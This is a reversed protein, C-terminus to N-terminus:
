VNFFSKSSSLRIKKGKKNSKWIELRNVMPWVNKNFVQVLHNAFKVNEGECFVVQSNRLGVSRCEKADGELHGNHVHSYCTLDSSAGQLKTAMLWKLLSCQLHDRCYDLFIMPPRDRKGSCCVFYTDKYSQLSQNLSSSIPLKRFINKSYKVLAEGELSLNSKFHIQEIDIINPDKIFTVNVYTFKGSDVNEVDDDVQEGQEILATCRYLGFIMNIKDIPNKDMIFGLKPDFNVYKSPNWKMGSNNGSEIQKELLIRVNPTAPGCPLIFYSNLDKKTAPPVYVQITKNLNEIADKGSFYLYISSTHEPRIEVETGGCTVNVSFFQKIYEVRITLVSEFFENRPTGNEEQSFDSARSSLTEFMYFPLNEVQKLHPISWMIPYPAQCTLVIQQIGDRIIYDTLNFKSILQNDIQDFTRYDHTAFTGDYSYYDDYTTLWIEPQTAFTTSSSINSIKVLTFIIVISFRVKSSSYLILTM